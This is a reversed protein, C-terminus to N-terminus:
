RRPCTGWDYVAAINPHSLTAISRMTEDFHERFSPSAALKSHILKLTVPRAHEQDQATYIVTNAGESQMARILFREAFLSGVLQAPDIPDGPPTM